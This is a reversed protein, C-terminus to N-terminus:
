VQFGLGIWSFKGLKNTDKGEEVLFLCVASSHGKSVLFKFVCKFVKYVLNWYQLISWEMFTRISLKM